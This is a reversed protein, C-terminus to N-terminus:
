SVTLTSGDWTILGYNSPIPNITLNELMLRSGTPLTQAEESPTVEYAGQYPAASRGKICLTGGISAGGALVGSLTRGGAIQGTIRRCTCEM